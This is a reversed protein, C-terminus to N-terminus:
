RTPISSRRPGTWKRRAAVRAAQTAVEAPCPRFRRATRPRTRANALTRADPIQDVRKWIAFDTPKTKGNFASTAITSNPSRRRWGARRTFAMPSALSRCRARRCNRGSTKGCRAAVRQRAAQQRRQLREGAQPGARDHQVAGTRQRPAAPGARRVHQSGGGDEGHLRRPIARDYADSLRRQRGAGAHADHLLDRSERSGAGDAFDLKHEEM